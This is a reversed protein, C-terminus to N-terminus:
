LNAEAEIRRMTSCLGSFPQLPKEYTSAAALGFAIKSGPKGTTLCGDFQRCLVFFIAAAIFYHRIAFGM